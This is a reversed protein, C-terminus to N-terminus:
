VWSGEAGVLEEGNQSSDAKIGEVGFANFLTGYRSCAVFPRGLIGAPKNSREVNVCVWRVWHFVVFVAILGCLGAAYYKMMREIVIQRAAFFAAMGAGSSAGHGGDSSGGASGGTSAGGTSPGHGGDSSPNGSPWAM